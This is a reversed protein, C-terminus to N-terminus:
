ICSTFELLLIIIIMMAPLFVGILCSHLTHKVKMHKKFSKWWCRCFHLTKLLFWYSPMLCFHKVRKHKKLDIRLVNIGPLASDKLTIWGDM